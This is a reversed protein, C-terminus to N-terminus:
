VHRVMQSLSPPKWGLAVSETTEVGIWNSGIKTEAYVHNYDGVEVTAVAIYRVPHGIAQLLTGALVSMDDCDGQHSMYTVIPTQLTEVDYVDQTYRINDRVWEQIAAAEGYWSKAPVPMVIEQALKRMMLNRRYERTLAVMMDLTVAIGDRGDPITYLVDIPKEPEQEPLQERTLIAM